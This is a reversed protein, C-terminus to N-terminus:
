KCNNKILYSEPAERSEYIMCANKHSENEYQFVATEQEIFANLFIATFVVIILILGALALTRM